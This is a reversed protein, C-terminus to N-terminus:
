NLVLINQMYCFLQLGGLSGMHLPICTYSECFAQDISLLWKYHHKDFLGSCIEFASVLIEMPPNWALTLTTPRMGNRPQFATLFGYILPWENMQVKCHMRSEQSVTGYAIKCCKMYRSVVDICVAVCGTRSYSITAWSMLALLPWLMHAFLTHNIVIDICVASLCLANLDYQM